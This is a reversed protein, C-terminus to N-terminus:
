SANGIIGAPVIPFAEQKAHKTKRTYKTKDNFTKAANFRHAYKAVPNQKVPIDIANLNNRKKM